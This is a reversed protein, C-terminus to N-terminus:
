KASENVISVVEDVLRRPDFPKELIGVAGVSLAAQSEEESLVSTFLAVPIGATEPAAKLRRLVELGDIEPLLVDLIVLDFQGPQALEMARLGDLASTVEFGHRELITRVVLAIDESDEVLLIRKNVQERRHRATGAGNGWM